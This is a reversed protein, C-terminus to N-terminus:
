KADKTRKVARAERGKNDSVECLPSFGGPARPFDSARNQRPACRPRPLQLHPDPDQRIDGRSIRRQNCCSVRGSQARARPERPAAPATRPASARAGARLCGGVVWPRQAALAAPGPRHSALRSVAAAWLAVALAVTQSRTQSAPERRQLNCFPQNM